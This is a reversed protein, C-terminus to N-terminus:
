PLLEKVPITGLQRGAVVVPVSDDPGYDDQQRYTPSKGGRPQTYVEIRREPINVIWYVPIKAAAYLGLKTTQDDPLSSDSVEVVLPVERAGPHRKAYDQETGIAVVVDPEPESDSLTIPQQVGIVVEAGLLATLHRNVRRVAAAHPPNIVPKEVILGHILECRDAPTLIGVEGLKHYEAVTFRRQPPGGPAPTPTLTATAM